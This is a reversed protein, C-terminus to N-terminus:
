SQDRESEGEGSRGYFMDTQQEKRVIKKGRFDTRVASTKVGVLEYNDSGIVLYGTIQPDDKWIFIAGKPERDTM